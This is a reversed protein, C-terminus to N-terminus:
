NDEPALPFFAPTGDGHKHTVLMNRLERHNRDMADQLERRNRDIDDKLERYNRDIRELMEARLNGLQWRTFLVFLTSQAILLVGIAAVAQVTESEM